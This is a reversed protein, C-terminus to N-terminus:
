RDSTTTTHTLLARLVTLNVCIESGLSGLSVRPPSTPEGLGEVVLAADPFRDEQTYRHTTIVTCLGAARAALLGNLTDEVAICATADLGLGRLVAQYVAPSPKKEVTTDNSEVVEFWGRWGPTLNLDLLTELNSRASSTAIALRIGQDRAESLLRAVGPRLPVRGAELLAAYRATKLRHIAAIDTLSLSKGQKTPPHEAAYRTIRERGGSIALLSRYEAPSWCWGLGQAEFTANFAQRHIEETDALTGDVDFILAQLQSGSPATPPQPARASM